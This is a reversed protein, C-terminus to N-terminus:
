NPEKPLECWHTVNEIAYDTSESYFTKNGEYYEAVIWRCNKPFDTKTYVLYHRGNSNNPLKYNVSFVNDM